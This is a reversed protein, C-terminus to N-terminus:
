RERACFHEPMNALLRHVIRFIEEASRQDHAVQVCLTGPRTICNLFFRAAVYTTIGLQRAKLVISRKAATTAYDRQAANVKLAQLRGSKNRIKLWEVMLFERPAVWRTRGGEKIPCCQKTVDLLEGWQRLFDLQDEIKERHKAIRKERATQPTEAETEQSIFAILRDIQEESFERGAGDAEQGRSDTEEDKSQLPM